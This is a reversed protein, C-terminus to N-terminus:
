RYTAIYQYPLTADDVSVLTLGAAQMEETLADPTIRMKEGPGVPIDGMKFDVVVVRGGPKLKQKVKAFYAPRAEIHHVTDVLLVIDVPEPLAPDDTPALVPVVNTLGEKRAREELYRVMDKEVDVAIVKGQPLARALPMTFYGTGAGIDAAVEGGTLGLGRVVDGPKQWADRAPDDFRRAWEEANEFRHHGDHHGGPHAGHDGHGHREEHREDHKREARDGACAASGLVPASVVLAAIFLIRRSKM